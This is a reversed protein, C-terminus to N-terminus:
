KEYSSLIKGYYITHYDKSPYYKSDISKELVDGCVSNKHIIKCEYFLNCDAIVSIGNEKGKMTSLSCEKLKNTDRGSKTGCFMLEKKLKEFPINVSFYEANEMLKYTHRVPRVMVCLVPEYWMIGINAWGITMVNERGEKDRVFLFAGDNEMAKYFRDFSGSINMENTEM